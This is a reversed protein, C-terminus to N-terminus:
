AGRDHGSQARARDARNLDTLAQLETDSAEEVAILQEDAQPVSRLLEDLKRQTASESRAQTHQLAFVMILTLSSSTAYLATQWWPPFGITLGFLTWAFVFSAVFFGAGAHATFQGVRHLARSTRTRSRWETSGKSAYAGDHRHFIGRVWRQDSGGKPRVWARRQDVDSSRQGHSTTVCGGQWAQTSTGM